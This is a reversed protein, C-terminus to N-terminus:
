EQIWESRIYTSPKWDKETLLFSKINPRIELNQIESIPFYRYEQIAREKKSIEPTMGSKIAGVFILQILHKYGNPDINENLLLFAPNELEINLEEKLERELAQLASEGFEIGGGPLLWYDKKNKKQRVLLIEGKENRILAAVRVRLKKARYFFSVM